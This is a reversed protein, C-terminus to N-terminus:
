NLIRRAREGADRPPRPEAFTIFCALGSVVACVLFPWTEPLDHGFWTPGWITLVVFVIAAVLVSLVATRAISSWWRRDYGHQFEEPSRRKKKPFRITNM